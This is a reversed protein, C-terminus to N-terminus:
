ANVDYPMAEMRSPLVIIIHTFAGDIPHPKKENKKMFFAWPALGHSYIQLSHDIKTEIWGTTM